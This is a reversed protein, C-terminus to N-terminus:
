YYSVHTAVDQIDNDLVQTNKDFLRRKKKEKAGITTLSSSERLPPDESMSTLSGVFLIKM